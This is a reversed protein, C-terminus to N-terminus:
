EGFIQQLANSLDQGRLGRALIHGERDLLFTCPISNVGYIKAAASAWGKLDSVHNPWVLGDKAIAGKWANKDKDLSVSFIEFGKDHYKHYMAVVHPNEKRCPGCWSAWFDLLVVKGRLDSLKRTKGEPDNFALEPAINGVTASNMKNWREAVLTHNPYKEHLAKVIDAQLTKDQAFNDLFMLTALEEKNALMLDHAEKSVKENYADFQQQYGAVIQQVNNQAMTFLKEGMTKVINSSVTMEEKAAALRSGYENVMTVIRNCFNIKNKSNDLGGDYFQNDYDTLIADVKEMYNNFLSEISATHDDTTSIYADKTIFFDDFGAIRGLAAINVTTAVNTAFNRYSAFYNKFVKLEKVAATMYADASKKDVANKPAYKANLALLTDNKEIAAKIDDAVNANAQNYPQFVNLFNVFYKQDSNNQVMHNLSDLVHQRSVFMDTLKKTFVVSNSGSAEPVSQMNSADLTLKVKDGPNLCLLFNQKSPFTLAYLDSAEVTTQIVFHDNTIAASALTPNDKGYALKLDVNKDSNNLLTVDITVNQSFLINTMLLIAFM